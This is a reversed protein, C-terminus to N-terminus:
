PICGNGNNWLIAVEAPLLARNYIRLDDLSGQYLYGGARSGLYLPSSNTTAGTTLDPTSKVERDKDIYLFLTSGSKSFTVLHWQNDNYTNTSMISAGVSGNYRGVTIKNPNTTHTQNNIRIVYPYGTGAGGAWKEVIMNGQAATNSQIAPNKLWVSVTFDQNSAFDTKGDSDPISIYGTAGNLNAVSGFGTHQGSVPAAGGIAIGNNGSGSSDAVDNSTGSWSGEDMKWYGVLGSLLTGNTDCSSSGGGGGVGLDTHDGSLSGTNTITGSSSFACYCNAASSNCLRSPNAELAACVKFGTGDTVSFYTGGEPPLPVSGSSFDAGSVVAYSGVANRKIEYAKAIAEVDVRRKADRAGAGAGRYVTIGVVSLISIISIVVMLEVLTFGTNKLKLVPKAKKSRLFTFGKSLSLTLGRAPRRGHPESRIPKEM